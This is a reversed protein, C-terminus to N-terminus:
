RRASAGQPAAWVKEPPQFAAPIAAVAAAMLVLFTALPASLRKLLHREGIWPDVAALGYGALQVAALVWRAPSDWLATGVAVLVLAWPLALRGLKHSSFHFWAASPPWWLRPFLRWLQIVGAQTRVKRRFEDRLQATQDYAKARTELVVRHGDLAAGLPQFVDDLLLGAPMPRALTRRMAYISGTAGLMCGLDSQLRRIIKEYRWYLGVSQLPVGGDDLLVLEGSVVGVRPDAFAAVLERLANPELPQRVDTFFLIEGTAAALGANLAAAKGGKPVTVLRIRPDEAQRAQVIAATEDTSGDNLIWIEVREPPYDLAQLTDLKAAMWRAGNHVAVLVSVTRPEFCRVRPASRLRAWLALLLPYGALVYFLVGAGVAILLLGM